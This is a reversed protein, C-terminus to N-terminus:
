TACPGVQCDKERLFNGMDGLGQPGCGIVGVALRNSPSVAGDKGLSSSPIIVPFLAAGVTVGAANKVFQRRTILRKSHRSNM